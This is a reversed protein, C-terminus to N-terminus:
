NTPTRKAHYQRSLSTAETFPNTTLINLVSGGNTTVQQISLVHSMSLLTWTIFTASKCRTTM